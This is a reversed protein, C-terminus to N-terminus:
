NIGKLWVKHQHVGLGTQIPSVVSGPRVAATVAHQISVSKRQMGSDNEKPKLIGDILM